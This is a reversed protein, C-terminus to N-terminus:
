AADMRSATIGHAAHCVVGFAEYHRNYFYHLVKMKESCSKAAQGHEHWWPLMSRRM